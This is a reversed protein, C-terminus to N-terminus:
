TCHKVTGLVKQRPKTFFANVYILMLCDVISQSSNKCEFANMSDYFWSPQFLVGLVDLGVM